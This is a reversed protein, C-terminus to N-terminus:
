PRPGQVAHSKRAEELAKNVTPYDLRLVSAIVSARHGSQHLDMVAAVIEDRDSENAHDPCKGSRNAIGGCPEGTWSTASCRRIKGPSMPKSM